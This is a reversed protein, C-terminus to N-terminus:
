ALYPLACAHKSREGSRVPQRRPTAPTAEENQRREEEGPHPAQSPAPRQGRGVAVPAYEEVPLRDPQPRSTGGQRVQQQKALRRRRALVVAAVAAALAAAGVAGGVAGAIM